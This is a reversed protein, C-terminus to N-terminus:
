ADDRPVKPVSIKFDVTKKMVRGPWNRSMHHMPTVPEPMAAFQYYEGKRMGNKLMAECQDATNTLNQLGICWDNLDELMQRVAPDDSNIDELTIKTGFDDQGGELYARLAAVSRFKPHSGISVVNDKSM